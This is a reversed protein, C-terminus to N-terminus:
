EHDSSQLLGDDIARVGTRERGEIGSHQAHPDVLVTTVPHNDAQLGTRTLQRKLARRGPHGWSPRIRLMRLLQMEVNANVVDLRGFLRHQRQAGAPERRFALAAEPDERIRDTMRETEDEAALFGLEERVDRRQDSQEGHNFSRVEERAHEDSQGYCFVRGPFVVFTKDDTDFSAYWGRGALAEAFLEALDSPRADSSFEV